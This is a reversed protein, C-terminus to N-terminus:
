RGNRGDRGRRQRFPRDTAEGAGARDQAIRTARPESGAAQRAPSPRSPTPQRERTSSGPTGCAPDARRDGRPNASRLLPIGFSLTLTVLAGQIAERRMRSQALDRSSGELIVVGRASASALRLGQRFLRGDKISQTLDLLTKREFLLNDDVLYDGVPLRQLRVVVQPDRACRTSSALTPSAIM